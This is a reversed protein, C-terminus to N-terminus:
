RELKAMWGEATAELKRAGEQAALADGHATTLQCAYKRLSNELGAVAGGLEGLNSQFAAVAARQEELAADLAALAHRLRDEPAPEAPARQPFLLIEASPM